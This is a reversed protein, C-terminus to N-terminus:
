GLYISLQLRWAIVKSSTCFSRNLHCKGLPWLQFLLFPFDSLCVLMLCIYSPNGNEFPGILFHHVSQRFCWGSSFELCHEKIEALFIFIYFVITIFILHQSLFSSWRLKTNNRKNFYCSFYCFIHIKQTMLFSFSTRNVKEPRIGWYFLKLCRLEFKSWIISLLIFILWYLYWYLFSCYGPLCYIYIFLDFIDSFHNLSLNLLAPFM